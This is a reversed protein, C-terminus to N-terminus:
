ACEASAHGVSPSRLSATSFVSEGAAVDRVAAVIESLEATKIVYGCAGREYAARILTPYEFASLMLFRPTGARGVEELLRLGEADGGMQIDCVVSLGVRCSHWSPGRM